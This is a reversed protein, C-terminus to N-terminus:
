LCSLFVFHFLLADHIFFLALKFTDFSFIDCVRVKVPAGQSPITLNKPIRCTIENDLVKAKCDVGNITM